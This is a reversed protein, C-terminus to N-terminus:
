NKPIKMWEVVNDISVECIFSDGDKFDKSEATYFATSSQEPYRRAIAEYSFGSSNKIFIKESEFAGDEQMSACVPSKESLLNWHSKETIKGNQQAFLIGDMKKTLRYLNELIDGHSFVNEHNAICLEHLIVLNKVDSHSIFMRFYGEFDELQAAETLEANIRELRQIEAKLERKNKGM